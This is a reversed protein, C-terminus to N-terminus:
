VKMENYAKKAVNTNKKALKKSFRENIAKILSKKTIMRTARAFAGLMATNVIPKGLVDLAIKTADISYTKYNKYKKAKSSNVIVVGNKKLGKTINPLADDLVIVYDPEYVHTRLLIFKKDIRCFAKVPAGRREPGFSGFAQSFKGDNFAAMALLQMGTVIGQGGRGHGRIEIM